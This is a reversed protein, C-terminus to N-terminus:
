GSLTSRLAPRHAGSSELRHPAFRRRARIRSLGCVGGFWRAAAVFAPRFVRAGKPAIGLSLSRLGRCRSCAIGGISSITRDRDSTSDASAVDSRKKGWGRCTKLVFKALCSAYHDSGRGVADGNRHGNALVRHRLVPLFSIARRWGRCDPFQGIWGAVSMAKAARVLNQSRRGPAGRWM